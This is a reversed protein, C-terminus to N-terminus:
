ALATAADAVVIDAGSTLAEAFAARGPPVLLLARM